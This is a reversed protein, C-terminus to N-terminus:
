GEWAALESEPLPDFFSDDVTLRGKLAGFRRVPRNNRHSVLRAVPKGSRAIVIEEGAEVQVLLRSLHTKAEHVNVTTM